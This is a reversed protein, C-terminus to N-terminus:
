EVAMRVKLLDQKVITDKKKLLEDMDWQSNVYRGALWERREKSLWVLTHAPLEPTDTLAQHYQTPLSIGMGTAVGGPHISYALIGQDGYDCMVFEMLRLQALKAIEYSHAGSQLLHAGLSSLTIITKEGESKELLLPILARTVLYTGKLNIELGGWWIDPDSDALKIWPELIGANNILIDLGGWAEDVQKAAAEVGSHSTVDVASVLVEPLPKGLSVAAAEVEAKTEQLSSLSRAWIAIRSAGAQAFSRATVRGIGKSAGTILVSKGALNASKPDILSYTDRHVIAVFDTGNANLKKTPDTSM